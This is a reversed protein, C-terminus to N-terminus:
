RDRVMKVALMGDMKNKPPFIKLAGKEDILNTLQPNEISVVKFDDHLKLFAEVVQWNEEDELSCTAYVLIGGLKVFKYVHNLISKQLVVVRKLHKPKRRWKIDPRRGIVGTGTCPVDVLIKDAMPFTDKMADKQEWTININKLRD